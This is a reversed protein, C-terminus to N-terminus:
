IEFTKNKEIPISVNWWVGEGQKFINAIEKLNKSKEELAAIIKKGISIKDKNMNELKSWKQIIAKYKKVNDDIFKAEYSFGRVATNLQVAYERWVAQEFSKKTTMQGLNLKRTQEAQVADRMAKIRAMEEEYRAEREKRYQELRRQYEKKVADSAKSKGVWGGGCTMNGDWQQGDHVMRALEDDSLSKLFSDEDSEAIFKKAKQM